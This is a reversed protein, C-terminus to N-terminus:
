VVIAFEWDLKGKEVSKYAYWCWPIMGLVFLIWAFIVLGRQRVCLWLFPSENLLNSVRHQKSRAFWPKRVREGKAQWIRPLVICAGVLFVLNLAWLTGISFWFEDAGGTARYYNDYAKQFAYGASPLLFFHDVFSNKLLRFHMGWLAPLLGTFIGVIMLSTVLSKWEDRNFVSICVGISLSFMLTTLLVLVMRWFEAGTVGGMLIPLALVPLIAILGYVATLSNSVIKGFVVDLSKLDTLFLLGLTGERREGSLSDATFIAGGLAYIFGIISLTNFLDPGLRQVRWSKTFAIMGFCFVMAVIAAALRM